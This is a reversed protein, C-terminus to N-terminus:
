ILSTSAAMIKGNEETKKKKSQVITTDIITPHDGSPKHEYLPVM